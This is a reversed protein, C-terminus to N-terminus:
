IEEEQHPEYANSTDQPLGIIMSSDWVFEEREKRKKRNKSTSASLISPETDLYEVWGKQLKAHDQNHLKDFFVFAENYFEIGDQDWADERNTRPGKIKTWRPARSIKSWFEYNCNLITVAFAIDSPTVISQIKANSLCKSKVLPEDYGVTAYESLFKYYYNEETLCNDELSLTNFQKDDDKLIFNSRLWEIFDCSFLSHYSNHYLIRHVHRNIIFFTHFNSNGLFEVQEFEKNVLM